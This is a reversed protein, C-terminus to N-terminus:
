EELKECERRAREAGEPGREQYTERGHTLSARDRREQLVKVRVAAKPPDSPEQRRLSDRRQPGPFGPVMRSCSETAGMAWWDAGRDSCGCWGRSEYPAVGGRRGPGRRRSRTPQSEETEQSAEVTGGPAPRLYFM